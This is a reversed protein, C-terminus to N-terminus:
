EVIPSKSHYKNYTTILQTYQDATLFTKYQKIRDIDLTHVGAKYEDASNIKRSMENFKLAYAAWVEKAKSVQQPTLKLRDQDAKVMGDVNRDTMQPRVISKVSDPPSTQASAFSCVSM